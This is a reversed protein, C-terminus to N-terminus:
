DAQVVNDMSGAGYEGYADYAFHVEWYIERDWACHQVNGNEEGELEVTM